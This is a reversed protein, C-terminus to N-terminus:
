SFPVKEKILRVWARFCKRQREEGGTRRSFFAFTGKKKKRLFQVTIGGERLKRSVAELLVEGGGGKGVQLFFSQRRRGELGSGPKEKKKKVLTLTESEAGKLLSGKRKKGGEEPLEGRKRLTFHVKNVSKADNV